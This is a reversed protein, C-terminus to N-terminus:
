ALIFEKNLGLPKEKLAGGLFLFLFFYNLNFLDSYLSLTHM